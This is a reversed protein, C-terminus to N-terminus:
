HVLSFLWFLAFTFVGCFVLIVFFIALFAASGVRKAQEKNIAM